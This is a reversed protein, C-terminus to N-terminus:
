LYKKEFEEISLGKYEKNYSPRKSAVLRDHPLKKKNMKAIFWDHATSKRLNPNNPRYTEHYKHAMKSAM